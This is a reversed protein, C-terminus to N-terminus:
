IPSPVAVPNMGLARFSHVPWEKVAKVAPIIPKIQDTLSCGGWTREGDFSVKKQRALAWAASIFAPYEVVLSTIPV